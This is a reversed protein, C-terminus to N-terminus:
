PQPTWLAPVSAHRTALASGAANNLIRRVGNPHDTM